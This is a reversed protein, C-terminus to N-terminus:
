KCGAQGLLEHLAELDPNRAVLAEKRLKRLKKIRSEVNAFPMLFFRM